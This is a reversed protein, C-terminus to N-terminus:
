ESDRREGAPPNTQDVSSEEATPEGDPFLKDIHHKLYRYESNHWEGGHLMKNLVDWVRRREALVASAAVEDIHGIIQAYRGESLQTHGNRRCYNLYHKYREHETMNM